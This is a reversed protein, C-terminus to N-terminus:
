LSVPFFLFGFRLCYKASNGACLFHKVFALHHHYEGSIVHELNCKPFNLTPFARTSHAREESDNTENKEVKGVNVGM